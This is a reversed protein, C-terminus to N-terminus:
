HGLFTLGIMILIGLSLCVLQLTSKKLNTEKRLEPFLDSLAIYIFGGATFPVLIRLLEQTQAAIILTLLAGVLATLATFFNLALAQFLRFGGHILVSFDGIEQPIEHLLVAISTSIGLPISVSFAAAIIVGDIFNHFADGILNTIAFPHPHEKTIPHHCHRWCIIKELVFFSIIGLVVSFSISLNFGQDEAVEPLLHFFAGGLLAGAAFSVLFTLIKKLTHIKLTLTVTGVLSILSILFVSIITYLWAPNM